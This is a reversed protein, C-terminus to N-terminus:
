KGRLSPALHWSRQKKFFFINSNPKWGQIVYSSGSGKIICYSSMMHGIDTKVKIRPFDNSLTIDLLRATGLNLNESKVGDNNSM